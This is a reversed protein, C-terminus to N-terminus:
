HSLTLVQDLFYKGRDTFYLPHTSCLGYSCVEGTEYNDLCIACCAEDGQSDDDQKKPTWDCADYKDDSKSPSRGPLTKTFGKSTKSCQSPMNYRYTDLREVVSKTVDSLSM